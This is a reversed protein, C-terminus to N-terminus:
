VGMRANTLCIYEYILKKIEPNENLMQTVGEFGLYSERDLNEKFKNMVQKHLEEESSDDNSAKSNNSQSQDAGPDEMTGDEIADDVADIYQQETADLRTTLTVIEDDSMGMFTKYFQFDDILSKDLLKLGVDYKLQEIRWKREEDITGTLPWEISLDKVFIGRSALAIKYFRIIEAEFLIQMRRVLRLFCIYQTDSTSKSNIDDEKGILLKPVGTSYILRNQFYNLPDIKMSSDSSTLNQIGANSGQRTPVYIDELVALPNYKFGLRGTRQDVYKRRSVSNKYKDMYDLIEDGALDGVDVMIGYSQNARSLCSIMLGEEMLRLQRYLLRSKELRSVGKAYKAKRYRDTALSFHLGEYQALSTLEKNDNGIQIIYKKPDRIGNNVGPIVSSTPINRFGVVKNTKEEILLEEYSDGYKCAERAISHFEHPFNTVRDIEEIATNVKKDDSKVKFIQSRNINDPYIIYDAMVDLATSLEPVEADMLDFDAYKVRDSANRQLLETFFDNWIFSNGYPDNPDTDTKPPVIIPSFFMKVKALNQEITKSVWEAINM